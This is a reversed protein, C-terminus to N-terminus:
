LKLRNYELVKDFSFTSYVVKNNLISFIKKFLLSILSHQNYDMPEISPFYLIMRIVYTMMILSLILVWIKNSIKEKFLFLFVIVPVIWFLPHYHFALKYNNNLIEIWARSMGCSPCPIGFIAKFICVTGFLFNYVMLMLLTIIVLLFKAFM